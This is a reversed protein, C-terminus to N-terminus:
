ERFADLAQEVRGLQQGAHVFAVRSQRDTLRDAAPDTLEVSRAVADRQRQALRRGAVGPLADLLPVRLARHDGSRDLLDLREADEDGQLGAQGAQQRAGLGAKWAAGREALGVRDALLDLDLDGLDIRPALA